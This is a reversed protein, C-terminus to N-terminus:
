YLCEVDNNRMFDVRANTRPTDTDPRNSRLSLRMSEANSYEPYGGAFIYAGRRSRTMCASPQLQRIRNLKDVDDPRSPIVVVYNGQNILAANITAQRAEPTIPDLEPVEDRNLPNRLANLTAPGVIGDITLGQFEQFQLVRAETASGFNGNIEVAPPFRESLLAQLARVDAGRDGLRLSREGLAFERTPPDSSPPTVVPAPSGPLVGDFLASRTQAGFIGDPTLGLDQQYRFVAAETLEGYFASIPGDYIGVDRLRRQLASVEPGSDGRRLTQGSSLADRTPPDSPPPTVIPAPSGPLVGDFLASDTQAGFIGDPTLGLDQQYRFVAAETLEGYFETIPGDYIGVERLQRQLASVEPGRDGLRLTQGPSLIGALASSAFLLEGLIGLAVLGSLMLPKLPFVKALFTESILNESCVDGQVAKPANTAECDIEYAAALHIFAFTEM